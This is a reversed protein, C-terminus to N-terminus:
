LMGPKFLRRKDLSPGSITFKGEGHYHFTKPCKPRPAAQAAVVQFVFFNLDPVLRDEVL